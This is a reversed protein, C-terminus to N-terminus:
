HRGDRSEELYSDVTGQHVGMIQRFMEDKAGTSSPFVYMKRESLYAFSVM